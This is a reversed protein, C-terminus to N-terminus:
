TAIAATNNLNVPPTIGTTRQDRCLPNSWRFEMAWNHLNCHIMYLVSLGKCCHLGLVCLLCIGKMEMNSDTLFAYLTLECWSFMRPNAEKGWIGMMSQKLSLAGDWGCLINEMGEAETFGLHARSIYMKWHSEMEALPVNCEVLKLWLYIAAIIWFFTIILETVHLQPHPPNTSFILHLHIWWNTSCLKCLGISKSM